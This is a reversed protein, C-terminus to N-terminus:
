ARPPEAEPLSPLIAGRPLDLVLEFPRCGGRAGATFAIRADGQHARMFSRVADLGVGRGSVSSLRAASTVGSLFVKDAIEEDRSQRDGLRDRLAGLPLGRGDDAICISAGDARHDIRLTIRGQARKGAALREDTTEIGHDLANRLAHVLVDRVVAVWAPALAGGGDGDSCDVIPTMKRLERALSPLMRAGEAVLEALPVASARAVIDGIARLARADSGPAAGNGAAEKVAADKVISGIDSLGQELRASAGRALAGLKRQCVDEHEELAALVADVGAILGLRDAPRDAAGNGRRRADYAEEALHATDVLHGLGLLRANGKITHM